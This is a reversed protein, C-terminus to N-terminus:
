HMNQFWDNPGEHNLTQYITSLKICVFNFKSAGYEYRKRQKTKDHTYQRHLGVAALAISSSSTNTEHWQKREHLTIVTM